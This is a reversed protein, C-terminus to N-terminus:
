ALCKKKAKRKGIKERKDTWMCIQKTHVTFQIHSNHTFTTLKCFPLSKQIRWYINSHINNNRTNRRQTTLNGNREGFCNYTMSRHACNSNKPDIALSNMTFERGASMAYWVWLTSEICIQEMPGYQMLIRQRTFQQEAYLILQCSWCVLMRMKPSNENKKCFRTAATNKIRGDASHKEERLHLTM